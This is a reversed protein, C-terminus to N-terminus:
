VSVANIKSHSMSLSNIVGWLVNKGDTDLSDFAKLMKEQEESLYPQNVRNEGLLYDTPVNFFKAFSKLEEDRVPRTGKEIRNLVSRNINIKDALEKQTLDHSERLEIIKSSVSM